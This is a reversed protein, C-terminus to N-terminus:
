RRSLPLYTRCSPCIQYRIGIRAKCRPCVKHGAPAVATRIPPAILSAEGPHEGLVALISSESVRDPMPLVFAAKCTPCAVQQGSLKEDFRLKHGNPCLLKRTMTRRLAKRQRSSKIIFPCAPMGPTRNRAFVKVPAIPRLLLPRPLPAEDLRLKGPRTQGRPLHSTPNDILRFGEM